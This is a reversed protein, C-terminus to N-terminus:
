LQWAGGNFGAGSLVVLVRSFRHMGFTDRSIKTTKIIQVEFFHHTMEVAISKISKM